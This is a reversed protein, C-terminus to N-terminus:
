VLSNEEINIEKAGIIKMKEDKVLIYHDSDELTKRDHSISIVTTEELTYIHFYEKNVKKM